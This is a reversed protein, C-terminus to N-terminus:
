AGWTQQAAAPLRSIKLGDGQVCDAIKQLHGQQQQAVALQRNAVDSKSAETQMKEALQALGVFEIKQVVTAMAGGLAPTKMTPTTPVWKNREAREKDTLKAVSGGAARKRERENRAADLKAMEEHLAATKIGVDGLGPVMAVVAGVAKKVSSVVHGAWDDIEDTMGFYHLVAYVAGALAALALICATVPSCVLQVAIGLAGMALSCLGSVATIGEIIPAVIGM